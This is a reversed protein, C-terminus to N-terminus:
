RRNGKRNGQSSTPTPNMKVELRRAARQIAALKQRQNHSKRKSIFLLGATLVLGGVAWSVRENSPMDQLWQQFDELLGSNGTKHPKESRSPGWSDAISDLSAKGGYCSEEEIGGHMGVSQEVRFGAALCLETGNSAWESARGCVFDNAGCPALVQTKADMSFYANSCAQFVRDCFSTCILPPGPQVGVRPDCISCELLEWLHLCEESAEGTLALRRISLLAPHTQAADCCTKKRFVRCLTLDKHGKGVRKPPKGESSFPPFRGGQSVCLGGSEGYSFSLLLNFLLLFILFGLEINNMAKVQVRIKSSHIM